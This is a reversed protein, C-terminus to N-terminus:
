KIKMFQNNKFIYAGSELGFTGNMEDNVLGGGAADKSAIDVAKGLISLFSTTDQNSTITLPAGTDSLTVNFDHKAFVTHPKIDYAMAYDPVTLVRTKKATGDVLLMIQSPIIRIGNPSKSFDSKQTSITTCASLSISTIIAVLLIKM